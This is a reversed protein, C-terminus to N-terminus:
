LVALLAALVRMVQPVLMVVVAAVQVQIQLQQSVVTLLGDVLVTEVLILLM